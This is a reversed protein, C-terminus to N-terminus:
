SNLSSMKGQLTEVESSDWGRCEQLTKEAEEIEGAYEHKRALVAELRDEKERLQEQLEEVLRQKEQLDDNVELLDQRRRKLEDLDCDALEDAQAQAVTAQNELEEHQEILDPLVPQIIQEQQTLCLHDQELEDGIKSLGERLGELLKMRWEYWMAKSLLRAHTKVNKFQNDMIPKVDAPASVYERFLPPNDEYTDAEIEKVISRGESIYNKLERCSHQYLELMPVTCTGAVVCRELDSKAESERGHETEDPKTAANPDNAAGPVVTHRRKTTNLEIFRINIMNLFDQLHIRVEEEPLEIIKTTGELKAEFSQVQAPTGREADKFRTQDKPTTNNKSPSVSISPTGAETNGDIEALSKRNSRTVRGTTTSKPPPGPLRVQKVPSGERGKLRKTSDEDNDEEDLEKPRKGLLGKAAGVHLSKRGKLKKKQPTLSGIMDKLNATVDKSGEVDQEDAEGQLIRRGNERREEDRREQEIEQEMIQPNEFRVNSGTNGHPVFMKTKEGLSGRRDLLESVRPSGLGEKDAGLGSSRRKRPKLIISPTTTGTSSDKSFLPNHSDSIATSKNEHKAAANIEKKFLKKPSASRMTVNKSPPTKGPPTKPHAVQPTLQKSPTGPSKKPTLRNETAKPTMSKRTGSSKRASAQTQPSALSPSGTESAMAVKYVYTPLPREDHLGAGMIKQPSRNGFPSASLQGVDAEREMLVKAEAKNGTSLEQPLIDGIAATMDMSQDEIPETTETIPALIGGAAYTMDMDAEKLNSEDASEQRNLSQNTSHEPNGKQQIFGGIASTFEMTLEEENDAGVSRPSNAAENEQIGGLPMTLDMTDDEAMPSDAGSFMGRAVSSRRRGALSGRRKRQSSKDAAESTPLIGGIAKTMEMTRDGQTKDSVDEREALEQRPASIFPNVNEQDQFTSEGRALDSRAGTRAAWPKFANTIEDDAMEMSMDGNEDYAIGQTSAQGAAQQLAADLRASSNTSSEGTSHITSDDGDVATVTEDEELDKDDSDSSDIEEDVNEFTQPGSDDSAISTPSSSLDGSDNLTSPPITSSRRRKRQHLDRQHAPSAAVQLEEVQEPPTSPPESPDSSPASSRPDDFLTGRGSTLNSARRTSNTSASSTTSDEPLEVM